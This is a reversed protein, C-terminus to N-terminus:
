GGAASTAGLVGSALYLVGSVTQPAATIFPAPSMVGSMALPIAAVVGAVIRAVGGELPRM